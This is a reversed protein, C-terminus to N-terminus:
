EEQFQRKQMAERDLYFKMGVQDLIEKNNPFLLFHGPGAYAKNYYNHHRETIEAKGALPGTDLPYFQTVYLGDSIDDPYSVTNFRLIRGEYRGKAYVGLRVLKMLSKAENTIQAKGNRRIKAMGTQILDETVFLIELGLPAPENKDPYPFVGLKEKRSKLAQDRQDVTYGTGFPKIELGEAPHYSAINDITVILPNNEILLRYKKDFTYRGEENPKVDNYPYFMQDLQIVEPQKEQEAGKPTESIETM